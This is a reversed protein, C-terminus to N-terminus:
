KVFDILIARSTRRGILPVSGDKLGAERLEVLVEREVELVLEGEVDM